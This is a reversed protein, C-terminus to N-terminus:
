GVKGDAERRALTFDSDTKIDIFGPAVALGTADITKGADAPLKPGIAIICDGAIAVDGPMGATGAGDFLLGNRILLDFPM